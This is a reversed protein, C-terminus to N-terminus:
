ALALLGALMDDFSGGGQKADFAARREPSPRRPLWAAEFADGDLEGRERLVRGVAEIGAWERCVLALAVGWAATLITLPQGLWRAKVACVDFDAIPEATDLSALMAELAPAMGFWPGLAGHRQRIEAIPGALTDVIDLLASVRKPQRVSAPVDYSFGISFRADTRCFGLREGEAIISVSKLM